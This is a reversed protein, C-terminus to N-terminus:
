SKRGLLPIAEFEDPGPKMKEHVDLDVAVEGYGNEPIFPCNSWHDGSRGDRTYRTKAWKPLKLGQKAWGDIATNADQARSAAIKLVFVSGPDTLLWPVYAENGRFRRHLYYGGALSQSGFFRVLELAGDSLDQWTSAYDQFLVADDSAENLLEPDCLLAPTQLTVVHVGDLAMRGVADGVTGAPELRAAAVIKTKGLSRLKLDLLARLQSEVLAREGRAVRSLDVRALWSRGQPVIMEYAFLKGEAAARRAPDIATHVRLERRVEPWGFEKDLDSRDKWDVAFEPAEGCILGAGHCTAVDRLKGAAKVLSLPPRVPRVTPECHPAPFAHSFRVHEFNRGLAELSRAFDKQEATETAPPAAGPLG